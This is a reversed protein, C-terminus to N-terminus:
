WVLPLLRYRVTEAYQQYGPLEQRLTRDELFTRLVTILTTVVALVFALTSNLLIPTGLTFLISGAYGPHRLYAYPGSEVVQHGRDTQIRVYSSFFRNAKMSWYALASGLAMAGFAVWASREPFPSAWGFRKGLGAVVVAVFPLGTMVPVLARDWSKAMKAATRRERMLEPSARFIGFTVSAVAGSLVAMFMWGNRWALTGAPLFLSTATVVFFVFFRIIERASM